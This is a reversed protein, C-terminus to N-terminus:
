SGGVTYPLFRSRRRDGPVGVKLARTRMSPRFGCRSVGGPVLQKPEFHQSRPKIVDVLENLDLPFQEPLMEFFLIRIHQSETRAPVPNGGSTFHALIAARLSSAITSTL